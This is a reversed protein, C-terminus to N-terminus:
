NGAAANALSLCLPMEALVDLARLGLAHFPIRSGQHVCLGRFGGVLTTEKCVESLGTVDRRRLLGMGRTTRSGCKISDSVGKVLDPPGVASRRHSATPQKHFVGKEILKVGTIPQLDTRLMQSGEMQLTLRPSKFKEHNISRSPERSLTPM